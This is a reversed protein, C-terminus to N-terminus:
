RHRSGQERTPNNLETNASHLYDYWWPPCWKNVCNPLSLFRKVKWIQYLYVKRLQWVFRIHDVDATVPLDNDSSHYGVM